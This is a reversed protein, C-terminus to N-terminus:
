AARREEMGDEGRGAEAPADDGAFARSRFQFVLFAGAATLSVSIAVFFIM